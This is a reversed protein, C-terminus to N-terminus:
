WALILFVMLVVIIPLLIMLSRRYFRRWRLRTIFKQIEVDKTEFTLTDDGKIPLNNFDISFKNDTAELRNFSAVEQIVNRDSVYGLKDLELVVEEFSSIRKNCDKECMRAILIALEQSVGENFKRVDPVPDDSMVKILIAPANKGTFPCVGSLMEFFVIGLSYIDARIDVDAASLAQEPSMYAPTGFPINVTTLLSDKLGVAKAIGFDVLRITGDEQCIINEPKIDRHVLSYHKAAILASAIQIIIKSADECSMQGSFAIAERLSVGEVYDMVLYYIKKADDFGCDHVAVLNKHRIHTAIRAERLFRKVYNPNAQAMEPYLIKLAFLTDLMVHRVLYVDGGSGKGLLSEIVYGRFHEGNLFIRDEKRNM